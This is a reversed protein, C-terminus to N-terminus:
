ECVAGDRTKMRRGETEKISGFKAWFDNVTSARKIESEESYREAYTAYNM